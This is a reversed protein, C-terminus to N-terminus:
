GNTFKKYIQLNKDVIFHEKSKQLTSFYRFHVLEQLYGDDDQGFFGCGSASELVSSANM